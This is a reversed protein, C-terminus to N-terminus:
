KYIQLCPETLSSGFSIMASLLDLQHSNSQSSTVTGLIAARLSLDYTHRHAATIDFRASVLSRSSYLNLMRSPDPQPGIGCNAEIIKM